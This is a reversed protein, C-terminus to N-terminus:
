SLGGSFRGPGRPTEMTLDSANPKTQLESLSAAVAGLTAVQGQHPGAESLCGLIVGPLTASKFPKRLCRTAGLRTAPRLFEPGSSGTDSDFTANNLSALGNPRGDATSVRFGHQELWFEIAQGVHLDDDVVLIRRM